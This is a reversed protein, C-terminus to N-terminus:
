HGPLMAELPGANKPSFPVPGPAVADACGLIVTPSLPKPAPHAEKPDKSKPAPPTPTPATLENCRVFSAEKQLFYSTLNVIGRDSATLQQTVAAVRYGKGIYDALNGDNGKWQTGVTAESGEYTQAQVQAAGLLPALAGLILWGRM